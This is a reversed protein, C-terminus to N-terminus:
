YQLIEFLGTKIQALEEPTIEGIKAKLRTISVSRVQFPIVESDTELNNKKNKKLIVCGKLHKIRSSLPCIIRIRLKKNLANGSIIVVPRSGRQEQGITPELEAWFIDGQKM